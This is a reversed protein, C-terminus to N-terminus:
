GKKTQTYSSVRSDFLQDFGDEDYVLLNVDLAKIKGKSDTTSIVSTEDDWSITVLGQSDTPSFSIVNM